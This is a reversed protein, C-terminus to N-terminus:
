ILLPLDILVKTAELDVIVSFKNKKYTDYIIAIYIKKHKKNLVKHEKLSIIRLSTQKNMMLSAKVLDEAQRRNSLLARIIKQYYRTVLQRGIKSIMKLM